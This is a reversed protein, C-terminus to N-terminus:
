ACRGFIYWPGGEGFFVYGRFGRNRNILHLVQNPRAAEFVDSSCLETGLERAGSTLRLCPGWVFGACFWVGWGGGGPIYM